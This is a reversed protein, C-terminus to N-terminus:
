NLPGKLLCIADIWVTGKGTIVLNLKINDPNENKQLFFPTEQSAWDNSGSLASDLARSFYEGKGPFHCWMEIYVQGEVDETRLKSQYILRANEVDIDGTEFLRITTPKKTVVRLSGKQDFSIKKDELVDSKSIIGKLDDLPYFRITSVDAPKESCGLAMIMSLLVLWFISRNVSNM